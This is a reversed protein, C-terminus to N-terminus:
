DKVSEFNFHGHGIGRTKDLDVMVMAELKILSKYVVGTKHWISWYWKNCLLFKLVFTYLLM